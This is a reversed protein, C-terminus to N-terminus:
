SLLALLNESITHYAQSYHSSTDTITIPKGADAGQRISLALPVAGLFPVKQKKAEEEAGGTDFIGQKNGCEPCQYYSMNEIIGLIPVHVKHFMDIAKRADILAIDQPTSAIIVGDIKAKQALTLQADGTGPPLDIILIDCEQWVVNFLLQQLASMVMPGRWVASQEEKMLFGISMIQINYAIIPHLRDNDDVEPKEDKVGLMRPLSPGYIDADLLAVKKGLKQLSVAINVATTSKGVGGKGSAVALIKKISQISTQEDFPSSKKSSAPSSNTTHSDSAGKHSTMICIARKVGAVNGVEQEIHNRISEVAKTNGNPVNLIIHVLDGKISVSEILKTDIINQGSPITIKKLAHQIKQEDIM